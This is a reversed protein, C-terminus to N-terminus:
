LSDFSPVLLRLAQPVSLTVPAAAAAVEVQGYVDRHQAHGDRWHAVWGVLAADASVYGFGRTPIQEGCSCRWRAVRVIGIQVPVGHWASGDARM